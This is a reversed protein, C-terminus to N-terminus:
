EKEDEKELKAILKELKKNVAILDEKTPIDLSKLTQKIQEESSLATKEKLDAIAKKSKESMERSKSLVEKVAEKIKEEARAGTKKAKEQLEKVLMDQKEKLPEGKKALYEVKENIIKAMEATNKKAEELLDNIFKQQKAKALEGKRVLEASLDRAKEYTLSLIGLSALYADKLKNGM